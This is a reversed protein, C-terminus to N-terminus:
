LRQNTSCRHFKLLQKCLIAFKSQYRLIQIFQEFDMFNLQQILSFYLKYQCCIVPIIYYTLAKLQTSHLGDKVNEASLSIQEWSMYKYNAM